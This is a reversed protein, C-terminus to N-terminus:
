PKLGLPRFWDCSRYQFARFGLFYYFFRFGLGLARLKRDKKKLSSASPPAAPSAIESCSMPFRGEALIDTCTAHDSVCSAARIWKPLSGSGLNWSVREFLSVFLSLSLSIYIVPGLSVVCFYCHTDIWPQMAGPQFLRTWARGPTPVYM